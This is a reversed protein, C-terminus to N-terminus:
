SQWRKIQEHDSAKVDVWYSEQNVLIEKKWFPAETKLYDMLFECASFAAQRHKAAVQILVINDQPFLEGVRHIVSVAEIPWRKAATDIINAIATETVEPFHELHMKELGVGNELQRVKGLFSVIAGSNEHYLAFNSSATEADLVAHNITIQSFM